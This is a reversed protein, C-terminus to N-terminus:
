DNHDCSHAREDIYDALTLIYCAFHRADEPSRIWQHKVGAADTFEFLMYFSLPDECVLFEAQGTNIKQLLPRLLRRLLAKM